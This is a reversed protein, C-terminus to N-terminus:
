YVKEVFKLKAERDLTLLVNEFSKKGAVAAKEVDCRNILIIPKKLSFAMGLDFLSGESKGTWYVRVRECNEMAIRHESLIRLGTPDSLQEVDRLPYHATKGTEELRAVYDDLIAATEKPIGRVPCIIYDTKYKQSNM